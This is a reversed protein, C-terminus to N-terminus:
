PYHRASDIDRQFLQVDEGIISDYRSIINKKLVIVHFNKLEDACCNTRYITGGVTSFVCVVKIERGHSISNKKIFTYAYAM